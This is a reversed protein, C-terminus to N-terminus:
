GGRILIAAIVGYAGVWLPIFMLWLRALIHTELEAREARGESRMEDVTSALQILREQTRRESEIVDTKTALEAAPPVVDAIMQAAKPGIPGKLAEYLEVHSTAM